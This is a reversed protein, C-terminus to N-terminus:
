LAQEPLAYNVRNSESLNKDWVQRFVRLLNGGLIKKVDDESFGRALMREVLKEWDSFRNFGQVQKSYMDYPGFFGPLTREFEIRRMRQELTPMVFRDTGIGIFDVGVLSCVHLMHDIYTDTTPMKNTDDTCMVSHPCLGLVGGKAALIKIQEDRANRPNKCLAMVGSHSFIVPDNSYEVSELSTKYGVHSLDILVGLRNMETIAQQGFRTLGTDNPEFVGSGMRGSQNYTIQVIRLGLKQAITILRLDTELVDAGQTSMIIALKGEQKAQLIDQTQYVLKVKNPLTEELLYYQYLTRALDMFGLEGYTDALVTTSIASVGGELLFDLLTKEPDANLPPDEFLSHFLVDIAISNNLIKKATSVM